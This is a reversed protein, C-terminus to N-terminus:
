LFMKCLSKHNPWDAHQCNSGCYYTCKCNSCVALVGKIGVKDCNTCIRQKSIKKTINGKILDSATQTVHSCIDIERSYEGYKNNANFISLAKQAYTIAKIFSGVKIYTQATSILAIAYEKDNEGYSKFFKLEALRYEIAIEMNSYKGVIERTDNEHINTRLHEPLVLDFFDKEKIASIENIDNDDVEKENVEQTIYLKTLVTALCSLVRGYNHDKPNIINKAEILHDLAQEYMGLNKYIMGANTIARLYMKNQKDLKGDKISNLEDLAELIVELASRYDNLHMYMESMEVLPDSHVHPNLKGRLKNQREIIKRNMDIAEDYRATKRYVDSCTYMVKLSLLEDKVKTKLFANCLAICKDYKEAKRAQEIETFQRNSRSM